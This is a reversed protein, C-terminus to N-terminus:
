LYTHMVSALEISRLCYKARYPSIVCWEVFLILYILRDNASRTLWHYVSCCPRFCFAILITLCPGYGVSANGGHFVGLNNIMVLFDSSVNM